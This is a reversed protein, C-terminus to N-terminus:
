PAIELQRQYRDLVDGWALREADKRAHGDYQRLTAAHDHDAIVDNVDLKLSDAIERARVYTETGRPPNSARARAIKDAMGLDIKAPTKPHQKRRAVAM